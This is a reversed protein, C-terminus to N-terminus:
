HSVKYLKKECDINTNSPNIIKDLCEKKYSEDPMIYTIYCRDDTPVYEFTKVNPWRGIELEYIKLCESSRKLSYEGANKVKFDGIYISLFIITLIIILIKFWNERIFSQMSSCVMGNIVRFLLPYHKVLSRLNSIIAGYSLLSERKVWM